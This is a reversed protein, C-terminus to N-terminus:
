QFKIDRTLMNFVNRNTPKIDRPQEYAMAIQNYNTRIYDAYAKIYDDLPCIVKNDNNLTFVCRHKLALLEEIGQQSIFVNAPKFPDKTTTVERKGKSKTNIKVSRKLGMMEPEETTTPAVTTPAATTPAVTTPLVFEEDPDYLAQDEFIVKTLFPAGSDWFLNSIAAQSNYVDCFFIKNITIPDPSSGLYNPVSMPPIIRSNETTGFISM